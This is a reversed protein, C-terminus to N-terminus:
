FFVWCRRPWASSRLICHWTLSVAPSPTEKTCSCWPGAKSLIQHAQGCCFVNLIGEVCYHALVYQWLLDWGKPMAQQSGSEGGAGAGPDAAGAPEQTERAEYGRSLIDFLTQQSMVNFREPSGSIIIIPDKAVEEGARDLQTAEHAIAELLSFCNTM